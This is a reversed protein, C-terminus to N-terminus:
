QKYHSEVIPSKIHLFLDHKTKLLSFYNIQTFKELSLLHKTKDKLKSLIRNQARFFHSIYM